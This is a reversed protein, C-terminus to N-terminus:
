SKAVWPKAAEASVKVPVKPAKEKPPIPKGDADLKPARGKRVTKHYEADKLLDFGKTLIAPSGYKRGGVYTVQFIPDWAENMARDGGM